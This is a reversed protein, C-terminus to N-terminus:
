RMLLMKGSYESEGVKLRAHYIGSAVANGRDDRGNWLVSYRGATRAEDVLSRVKGGRVDFIELRVPFTEVGDGGVEFRLTTLPNFPNPYNSELRHSRVIPPIVVKVPGLDEASDSGRRCVELRYYLVAGSRADGTLHDTYAGMPDQTGELTEITSWTAHRGERRYIGIRECPDDGPLDWELRVASGSPRATFLATSIGTLGSIRKMVELRDGATNIGEYGFAFYLVTHNPGHYVTAGPTGSNRYTFSPAAGEIANVSSPSTQNNAGGLGGIIITLGESVSEGDRGDLVWEAASDKVLEAHLVDRYFDTSGIDKGINQGTVFLVRDEGRELFAELDIRDQAELTEDEANGTYWIVFRYKPSLFETVPGEENRRWTEFEMDLSEFAESYYFEYAGKPDDNVLLVDSRGLRVTLTDLRSYTDGRHHHFVFPVDLPEPVDTSIEISFSGAPTLTDGPSLTGVFVSDGGEKVTVYESEIILSTSLSDIAGHGLNSITFGLGIEEGPDPWHDENGGADDVLLELICVEPGSVEEVVNDTWYSDDNDTIELLFAIVDADPADCAVHFKFSDRSPVTEDVDVFGFFELSDEMVVHPSTSTLRAKVGQRPFEGVNQLTLPCEISEGPNIIGDGNGHSFGDEDDDIEHTYHVIGDMVHLLPDGCLTMGYHWDPRLEAAYAMWIRFAEGLTEGDSLPGYFYDFDLMAGTKTSGVSGLGHDDTFIYWGGMYNGAVYRSNSCAFLNYFLALPNAPPIEKNYFYGATGGYSFQHLDPSSHACVQIWEYNRQLRARYEDDNTEERDNVLDIVPYLLRLDRTWEGSNYYWDDDVFMLGRKALPLKGMRYLHIKAFYNNVLDAEAHDGFTLRGATLRGAFIDPEWDGGHYDFKGDDDPDEWTGDLDMYYYDIPFEEYGLEPTDMEFWPIPLDGILFVGTLGSPIESALLDRIEPPTGGSVTVITVDYGKESIDDVYTYLAATIDPYLEENVLIMLLSSEDRTLSRRKELKRSISLPLDPGQDRKWEEYTIPGRTPDAWRTFAVEGDRANAGPAFSLIPLVIGLLFTIVRLLHLSIPRTPSAYTMANSRSPLLFLTDRITM